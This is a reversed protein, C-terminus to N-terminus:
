NRKKFIVFLFVPIFVLLSLLFIKKVSPRNEEKKWIRKRLAILLSFILVFSGTLIVKPDRWGTVKVLSSYDAQLLNAVFGENKPSPPSSASYAEPSQIPTTGLNQTLKNLNDLMQQSFPSPM